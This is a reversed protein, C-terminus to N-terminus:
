RTGSDVPMSEDSWCDDESDPEVPHKDEDDWWESSGASESDGRGQRSVNLPYDSDYEADADEPGLGQEELVAALMAADPHLSSSDGDSDSGEDEAGAPLITDVFEPAVISAAQVVWSGSIRHHLVGDPTGDLLAPHCIRPWDPTGCAWKEAPDRMNEPARTLLLRVCRLAPVSSGERHLYKSEWAATHERAVRWIDLYRLSHAHLQIPTLPHSPLILHELVPCLESLRDSDFEAGFSADARSYMHLYRLRRGHEVLLSTPLRSCDIATLSTLSPMSWAEAVYSTLGLEDEDTVLELYQLCPLSLPQLPAEDTQEASMYHGLKLSVLQTAM